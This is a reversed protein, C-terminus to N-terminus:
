NLLRKMLLRSTSGQIGLTANISFGQFSVNMIPNQENLTTNTASAIRYLLNNLQDNTEFKLNTSLQGHVGYGINIAKTGEIIIQKVRDDSILSDIKGAGLSDRKLFYKVKPLEDASIKLGQKKAAKFAMLQIAENNDLLGM